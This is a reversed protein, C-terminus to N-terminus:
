RQGLAYRDLDHELARVSAYQGQHIYAIQGARDFFITSPTGAIPALSDLVGISAQYSPYPLRDDALLTKAAGASDDTDVGLFAIRNAYARSATAFIPLEARCPPCWSAWANLVVPLGRLRELRHMLAGYGGLLRSGQARIM